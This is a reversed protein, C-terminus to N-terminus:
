HKSSLLSLALLMSPPGRLQALPATEGDRYVYVCGDYCGAFVLGGRALLCVTGHIQHTSTGCYIKGDEYLLTYVTMKPGTLTRLLLGTQADRITVDESRVAVLLVKRPGEKLDYYRIRSDLSGTYVTTGYKEKVITLCTVALNSGRLTTLLQGDSTFYYVNGDLCAALFNNEVCEIALVTDGNGNVLVSDQQLSEDALFDFVKCEGGQEASSTVGDISSQSNDLIIDENILGVSQEEINKENNCNIECTEGIVIDESVDLMDFQLGNLIPDNTIVAEIDNIEKVNNSTTAIDVCGEVLVDDSRIVEKVDQTQSQQFYKSLDERVLCVSCDKLGTTVPKISTKTKKISVRKKKSNKGKQQKQTKKAKVEVVEFEDLSIIDELPRDDTIIQEILSINPTKKSKKSIPNPSTINDILSNKRRRKRDHSMPSVIDSSEVSELAIEELENEPINAFNNVITDELDNNDEDVFENEELSSVNLVTMGLSQMPVTKPNRSELSSYLKFKEQLLVQIELDIEKMRDFADTAKVSSAKEPSGTQVHKNATKKRETQCFRSTSSKSFLTQTEKAVMKAVNPKSSSQDYVLSKPKTNIKNDIINPTSVNRLSHHINIKKPQQTFMDIPKLLSITDHKLPTDNNAIITNNNGPSTSHNSSTSNQRKRNEDAKTVNSKKISANTQVHKVNKPASNFNKAEPTLIKKKNKFAIDDTDTQTKASQKKSQLQYSTIINQKPDKTSNNKNESKKHKEKRHSPKKEISRKGSVIVKSKDSNSSVEPRVIENSNATNEESLIDKGKNLSQSITPLGSKSASPVEDQNSENFDGSTMANLHIEIDHNCLGQNETTVPEVKIETQQMLEVKIETQQTMCIGVAADNQLLPSKPSDINEIFDHDVAVHYQKDLEAFPDEEESLHEYTDFLPQSLHGANDYSENNSIYESKTDLSERFRRQSEVDRDRCEYKRPRREYLPKSQDVRELSNCDMESSSYSFDDNQFILRSSPGSGETDHFERESNMYEYNGLEDRPFQMSYNLDENLNLNNDFDDLQLVKSLEAMIMPKIDELLITDQPDLICQMQKMFTDEYITNKDNQMFETSTSCLSKEAVSRMHQNFSNQSETLLSNIAYEFKTSCNPNDLLKHIKKKDMKFLQHVIKNKIKDCNVKHIPKQKQIRRKLKQEQQPFEPPIVDIIREEIINERPEQNEPVHPNENRNLLRKRVIDVTDDVSRTFTNSKEITPVPNGGYHDSSPPRHGTYEVHNRNTDTENKHYNTEEEYYLNDTSWPPILPVHNSNKTKHRQDVDGMSNVHYQDPNCLQNNKYTGTFGFENIKTQHLHPIFQRENHHSRENHRSYSNPTNNFRYRQHNGYHNRDENGAHPIFPNRFPRVHPTPFRSSGSTFNRPPRFHPNGSNRPRYHRPNENRWGGIGPHGRRM